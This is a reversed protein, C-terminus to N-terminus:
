SGLEREGNMGEGKRVHQATMDVNNPPLPDLKHRHGATCDEDSPRRASSKRPKGRSYLLHWSIQVCGRAEGKKNNSVITNQIQKSPTTM